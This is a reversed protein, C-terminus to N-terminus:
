HYKSSFWIEYQRSHSVYPMGEPLSATVGTTSFFSQLETALRQAEAADGPTFYRIESSESPIDVNGTVPQIEVVDCGIRTLHSKLNEAAKLQSPNALQLYIHPRDWAKEPLKPGSTSQTKKLERLTAIRWEGNERVLDIPGEWYTKHYDADVEEFRVAITARSDALRVTHIELPNIERTSGFMSSYKRFSMVSRFNTSLLGYASAPEREAFYSFYRYVTQEAANEAASAPLEQSAIAPPTVLHYSSPTAETQQASPSVLPPVSTPAQSPKTEPTPTSAVISPALKERTRSNRSVLWSIAAVLLLVITAGLVAFKVARSRANIPARGAPPQAPLTVIPTARVGAPTSLCGAIQDAARGVTPKLMSTDISIWHVTALLYDLSRSPESQDFRVPVINRRYKLAREVERLVHPSANSQATYVLIFLSCEEIAQMIADAYSGGPPIDRPAIWCQVERDELATLLMQAFTKDKDSHSIFVHGSM